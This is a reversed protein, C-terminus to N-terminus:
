TVKFWDETGDLACELQIQGGWVGKIIGRLRATGSSTITHNVDQNQAWTAGTEDGNDNRWRFGELAEQYVVETTGAVTIPVTVQGTLDTGMQMLSAITIIVTVSGAISPHLEMDMSAAVTVPITIAGTISEHYSAALTSAITIPVTVSGAISENFNAALTAAVTILVTIAGTIAFGYSSQMGSSVTIPVTVDGSLSPHINHVFTSVVTIPVTVDGTISEHYNVALTAAITIPVTINGTISEVYSAQLTAAITSLVTISGAITYQQPAYMTAAVTIPVTVQGVITAAASVALKPIVDSTVAVSDITVRFKWTENFATQLAQLSWELETYGTENASISDAPNEDDQIRGISFDGTTMGSPPDLQHTTNEGGPAIYISDYLVIPHQSLMTAVPTISVSISGNIINEDGSVMGSAITIPVTVSGTIFHEAYQAFSAAITIPISIDGSIAENFNAVMSAAITSPVTVSGNLVRTFTYDMTAAVTPTVTVDGTITAQTGSAVTIQPWLSPSGTSPYTLSGGTYSGVRFYVVDSASLDASRLTVCIQTELFDDASFAIPDQYDGAEMYPGTANWSGSAGSDLLQTDCQSTNSPTGAATRVYSSSDHILNWAGTVSNIQYYFQLGFGSGGGGNIEDLGIRVM